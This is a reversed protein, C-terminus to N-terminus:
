TNALKIRDTMIGCLALCLLRRLLADSQQCRELVLHLRALWDRGKGVVVDIGCLPIICDGGCVGRPVLSVPQQGLAVHVAADDVCQLGPM